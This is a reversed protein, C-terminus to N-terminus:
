LSGLGLKAFCSEFVMIFEVIDKNPILTSLHDADEYFIGYDTFTALVGKRNTLKYNYQDKEDTTSITFTYLEKSSVVLMYYFGVKNLTVAAGRISRKYKQESLVSDALYSKYFKSMNLFLDRLEKRPNAKVESQRKELQKASPVGQVLQGLFTDFTNSLKLNKSVVEMIGATFPELYEEPLESWLGEFGSDESYYAQFNKGFVPKNRQYRVVEYVLSNDIIYELSFTYLILGNPRFVTVQFGQEGLNLSLQSNKFEVTDSKPLDQNLALWTDALATSVLTFQQEKTFQSLDIM